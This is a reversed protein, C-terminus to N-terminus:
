KKPYYIRDNNFREFHQNPLVTQTLIVGDMIELEEFTSDSLDSDIFTAPFEFRGNSTSVKAELVGSFRVNTFRSSFICEIFKTSLIWTSKIVCKEFTCNVFESNRGFTFERGDLKSKVFHCNSYKVEVGMSANFFKTNVFKCNDYICNWQRLDTFDCSNFNCNKFVVKTLNCNQFSSNNFEVFEFITNKLDNRNEKHGFTSNGFDLYNDKTGIHEETLM